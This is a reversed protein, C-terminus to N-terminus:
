LPIFAFGDEVEDPDLSEFCMWPKNFFVGCRMTLGHRNKVPWIANDHWLILAVDANAEIATGGLFAEMSPKEGDRFGRKLQSLLVIVIGLEVALSKLTRTVKAVFRIEDEEDKGERELIQLYDVFAASANPNLAAWHRIEAVLWELKLSRPVIDIPVDMLREALGRIEIPTVAGPGEVPRRLARLLTREAIEIASMEASTVHVPGYTQAWQEAVQGVFATKGAGPEGGILVLQGAKRIGGVIGDLTAIGFYLRSMSVGEEVTDALKHMAQSITVSEAGSSSYSGSTAVRRIVDRSLDELKESGAHCREIIEALDTALKQKGRSLALEATAEAVLDDLRGGEALYDYVDYKKRTTKFRVIAAEIRRKRCEGLWSQAYAEGQDDNDAVIIVRKGRLHQFGSHDAHKLGGAGGSCCTALGGVSAIAEVCKEGEAVWVLSGAPAAVIRPLHFFPLPYKKEKVWRGNEITYQRFTKGGDPLDIREVRGICAGSADCYEYILSAPRTRPAEEPIELGLHAYLKRWNGKEQCGMCNYGGSLYVVFSPTSDDHFPCLSVVRDGRNTAKKLHTALLSLDPLELGM